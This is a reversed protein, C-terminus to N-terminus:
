PETAPQPKEKSEKNQHSTGADHDTGMHPSAVVATRGTRLQLAIVGRLGDAMQEDAAGNPGVVGFREEQGGARGTSRPKIAVAFAQEAVVPLYPSAILSIGELVEQEGGFAADLFRGIRAPLAHFFAAEIGRQEQFRQRTAIQLHILEALGLM